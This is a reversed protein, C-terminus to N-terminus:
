YLVIFLFTDIFIRVEGKLKDMYNAVMVSHETVRTLKEEKEKLEKKLRKIQHQYDSNDSSKVVKGTFLM